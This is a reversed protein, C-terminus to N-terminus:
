ILNLLLVNAEGTETVEMGLIPTLEKTMVMIELIATLDEQEQHPIPEQTMNWHIIIQLIHPSIGRLFVEQETCLGQEGQLFPFLFNM